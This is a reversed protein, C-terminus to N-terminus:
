DETAGSPVNTANQGGISLTVASGAFAATVAQAPLLFDFVAAQSAASLLVTVTLLGLRVLVTTARVPWHRCRAPAPCTALTQTNRCKVPLKWITHSSVWVQSGARFCPSTIGATLYSAVEPRAASATWNAHRRELTKANSPHVASESCGAM